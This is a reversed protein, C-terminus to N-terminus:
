ELHGSVDLLIQAGLLDFPALKTLMVVLTRLPLFLEMLTLDVLSSFITLRRRVFALWVNILRFDLAVLILLRFEM